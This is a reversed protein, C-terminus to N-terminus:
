PSFDSYGVRVDPSRLSTERRKLKVPIPTLGRGATNRCHGPHQLQQPTLPSAPARSSSTSLFWSAGVKEKARAAWSPPFENRDINMQPRYSRPTATHEWQLGPTLPPFTNLLHPDTQWVCGEKREGQTGTLLFEAERLTEKRWYALFMLKREEFM